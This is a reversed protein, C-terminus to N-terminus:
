ARCLWVEGEHFFYLALVGSVLSYIADGGGAVVAVSSAPVIRPVDFFGYFVGTGRVAPPFETVIQCRQRDLDSHLKHSDRGIRRPRRDLLEAWRERKAPVVFAKAFGTAHRLWDAEDAVPCAALIEQPNLAMGEIRNADHITASISSSTAFKRGTTFISDIM